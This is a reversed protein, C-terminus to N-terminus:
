GFRAGSSGDPKRVPRGPTGPAARRGLAEEIAAIFRRNGLALNGNTATRSQEVAAPELACRFLERYAQAREQGSFFTTQGRSIGLYEWPRDGRVTGEKV